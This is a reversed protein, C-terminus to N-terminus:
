TISNEFRTNVAFTHSMVKERNPSNHATSSTESQNRFTQHYSGFSTFTLMPGWEASRFFTHCKTKLSESRDALTCARSTTGQFPRYFRFTPKPTATKEIVLRFKSISVLRDPLAVNPCEPFTTRKPLEFLLRLQGKFCRTFNLKSLSSLIFCRSYWTSM